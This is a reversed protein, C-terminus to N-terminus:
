HDNLLVSRYTTSKWSAGATDRIAVSKFFRWLTSFAMLSVYITVVRDTITVHQVDVSLHCYAHM